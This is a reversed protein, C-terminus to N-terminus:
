SWMNSIKTAFGSPSKIRHAKYIVYVSCGARGWKECGFARVARCQVCGAGAPATGSPHARNATSLSSKAPLIVTNSKKKGGKFQKRELAKNTAQLWKPFSSTLQGKVTQQLVRERQTRKRQLHVTSAMHEWPTWLNIYNNHPPSSVGNMSISIFLLAVVWLPLLPQKIRSPGWRCIAPASIDLRKRRTEGSKKEQNRTADWTQCAMLETGSLLSQRDHTSNLKEGKKRKKLRRGRRGWLRPWYFLESYKKNEYQITNGWVDSGNDGSLPIWSQLAEYKPM